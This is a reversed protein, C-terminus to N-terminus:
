CGRCVSALARDVRAEERDVASSTGLLPGKQAKGHGSSALATGLSNTGPADVREGFVGGGITSSHHSSMGLGQASAPTVVFGICAAICLISLIKMSINGQWLMLVLWRRINPGLRSKLRLLALAAAARQTRLTTLVAGVRVYNAATM